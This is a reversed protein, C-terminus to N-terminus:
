RIVIKQTFILNRGTLSVIYIGKKLDVRAIDIRDSTIPGNWVLRGTIDTIRALTYRTPHNSRIVLYQNGLAYVVESFASSNEKFGNGSNYIMELDDFYAISGAVPNYGNGSNLIALVYEPTQDSYYIFPTSFRMWKDGTNASSRFYARAIWNSTEDPQKGFGRHLIAYVELSDGGQPTYLFWGTLSDPRATFPTNWHGDITDTYMYALSTILNPHIRGNTATGNAVILTLKNELKISYQGSHAISSRFCVNPAM